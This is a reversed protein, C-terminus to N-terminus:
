KWQRMWGASLKRKEIGNSYSFAANSKFFVKFSVPGASWNVTVAM